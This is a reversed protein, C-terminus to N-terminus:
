DHRIRLGHGSSNRLFINSCLSLVSVDYNMIYNESDMRLFFFPSHRELRVECPRSFRKKLLTISETTHLKLLKQLLFFVAVSVNYQILVIRRMEASEVGDLQCLINYSVDFSTFSAIYASASAGAEFHIVVMDVDFVCRVDVPLSAKKLVNHKQEFCSYLFSEGMGNLSGTQDDLNYVLKM